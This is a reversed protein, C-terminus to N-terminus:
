LSAAPFSTYHIKAKVSGAIRGNHTARSALYIPNLAVCRIRENRARRINGNSKEQECICRYVLREGTADSKQVQTVHMLM